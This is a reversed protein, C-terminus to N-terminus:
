SLEADIVEVNQAELNQFYDNVYDSSSQKIQTQQKPAFLGQYGNQISHDVKLAFLQPDKQYDAVLNQITMKALPKKIQKRYDCWKQIIEIKKFSDGKIDGKLEEKIPLTPVKTRGEDSSKNADAIQEDSSKNANMNFWKKTTKLHSKSNMKLWGDTSLKARIKQYGRDGLGHHKALSKKTAFCWGNEASLFHINELIMWEIPSLDNDQMAQIDLAYYRKMTFDM